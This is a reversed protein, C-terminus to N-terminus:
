SKRKNLFIFQIFMSIIFTCPVSLIVKLAIWGLENLKFSEMLFFWTHHFILLLLYSYYFRNKGMTEVSVEDMEQNSERSASWNFVLPRLYAILVASSAHLGFTNSFSDILLGILFAIIMSLVTNIRTPLLYIFLPYVMIYLGFGVELNNLVLVQLLVLLILQFSKAILTNMM